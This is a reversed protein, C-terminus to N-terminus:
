TKMRLMYQYWENMGKKKFIQDRGSTVQFYM